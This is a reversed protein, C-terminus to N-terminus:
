RKSTFSESLVHTPFRSLSQCLPVFNHCETSESLIPWYHERSACKGVCGVCFFVVAFTNNHTIYSVKTSLKIQEYSFYRSSCFWIQLNLWSVTMNHVEMAKNFMSYNMVPLSACSCICHKLALWDWMREPWAQLKALSLLSSTLFRFYSWQAEPFIDAYSSSQEFLLSWLPPALKEVLWWSNLGHNIELTETSLIGM